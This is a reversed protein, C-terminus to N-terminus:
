SNAIKKMEDFQKQQWDLLKVGHEKILREEIMNTIETALYKMNATDNINKLDQLTHGYNIDLIKAVVWEDGRRFKFLDYNDILKKAVTISSHIINKFNRGTVASGPRDRRYIYYDNNDQVIRTVHAYALFNFLGDEYHTVGPEFRLNYKNLFSTRFFQTTVFMTQEAMDYYPNMWKKRCKFRVKSPDYSVSGLDFKTGDEFELPRKSCVADVNYKRANEYLKEYAYPVILDDGDMFAIYEGTAANIGTNRAVSVGGNEQNIIKIRKDKKQHEELVRLTAGDDRSGDNVCIIEIEKLTQNEVCDLTEGLYKAVNYVPMVVSVKVKSEPGQPYALVGIQVGVFYIAAFIGVIAAVVLLAVKKSIKKLNIM